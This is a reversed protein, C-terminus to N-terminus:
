PSALRSHCFLSSHLHVKFVSMTCQRLVGGVCMSFVGHVDAIYVHKNKLVYACIFLDVLGPGRAQVALSLSVSSNGVDWIM